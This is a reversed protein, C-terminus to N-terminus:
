PSPPTSYTEKIIDLISVYTGFVFGILGFLILALNKWLKYKYPGLGPKEWITVLEIVAPFILGLMSLCVAGVLSIFGGLNPVLIAILITLSSLFLRFVFEMLREKEPFNKKLNKWMIEVPVYFQLSYTILIALAIMMKVSQYLIEEQPLNLTISGETDAGFRLYGFFGVTTYLLIVIAMGFNLVSPCGIFHNPNEMNNELSMVVGIGELAFIVTGFFLPMKEIPAVAPVTNFPPLQQFIYYFSIGISTAIFCNAIMSLPALYKLNTITNMLIIFPYTALIYLQIDWGPNYYFEVVQRTNKAVFVLYVCCCGLLDIVLFLNILFKALRSYKQTARPGALFAVEAVEAFSLSPIRTRRCLIHACKVLVHVCYTCITGVLITAVLGFMLGANSFALPMALIGSGLSGKLLHALTEFDTTPHPLNRNVFPDFDYDVVDDKVLPVVSGHELIFPAKKDQPVIQASKRERSKENNNEAMILEKLESKEVSRNHNKYLIFRVLAM